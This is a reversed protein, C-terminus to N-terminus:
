GAISRASRFFGRCTIGSQGTFAGDQVPATTRHFPCPGLARRMGCIYRYGYQVLLISVYFVASLLAVLDPKM